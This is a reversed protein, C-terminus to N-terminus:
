VGVLAFNHRKPIKFYHKQDIIQGVFLDCIKTIASKHAEIVLIQPQIIL